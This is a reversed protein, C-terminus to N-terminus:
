KEYSFPEDGICEELYEYIGSLDMDDDHVMDFVTEGQYGYINIKAGSEVLFKVSEIQGGMVAWFLATYGDRSMRINIDAGQDVLLRAIDVFGLMCAYALPTQDEGLCVANLFDKERFIVQEVHTVDRDEIACQLEFGPTGYEM